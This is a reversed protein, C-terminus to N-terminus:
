DGLRLNKVELALLCQLFFDATFTGRSLKNRLSASSGAQGRRALRRVLEDYTVGARVMEARLLRKALRDQM